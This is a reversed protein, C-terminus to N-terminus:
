IQNDYEGILMCTQCLVGDFQWSGCATCRSVSGDSQGIKEAKNKVGVCGCVKCQYLAFGYPKNKWEIEIFDTNQKCGNCKFRIV